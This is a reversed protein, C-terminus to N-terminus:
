KNDLELKLKEVQSKSLGTVKVILAIETGEKMLNKAIEQKEELIGERRGEQRGERRGIEERKQLISMTVAGKGDLKKIEEKIDEESIDSNTLEIYKLYIEGYYIITEM